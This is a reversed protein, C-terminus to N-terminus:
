RSAKRMSAPRIPSTRKSCSSVPLHCMGESPVAQSRQSGCVEDEHASEGRRRHRHLNEIGGIM